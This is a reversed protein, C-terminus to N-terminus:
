ACQENVGKLVKIKNAIADTPVIRRRFSMFNKLLFYWLTMSFLGIKFLIILLYFNFILKKKM